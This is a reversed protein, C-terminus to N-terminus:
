MPPYPGHGFGSLGSSYPSRGTPPSSSYAQYPNATPHLAGYPSLAAAAAAATQSTTTAAASAAHAAAALGAPYQSSYPPYQGAYAAYASAAASPSVSSGARYGAAPYQPYGPPQYAPFSSASTVSTGSHAPSPLSSSLPQQTTAATNILSSLDPSITSAYDPRRFASTNGASLTYNLYDLASAHNHPSSLDEPVGSVGSSDFSPLLHSLNLPSDAGTIAGTGRPSGSLLGSGAHQMLSSALSSSSSASQQSSLQQQALQPSTESVSTLFSSSQAGGGSQSSASGSVAGYSPSNNFQSSSGSPSFPPLPTPTPPQQVQPAVQAVNHSVVSSRNSSNSNNNSSSAHSQQSEQSQQSGSQLFPQFLPQQSFNQQSPFQSLNSSSSAESHPTSPTDARPVLNSISQLPTLPATSNSSSEQITPKVVGTLIEGTSRQDSLPKSPEHMGFAIDRSRSSSNSATEDFSNTRYIPSQNTISSPSKMAQPSKHTTLALPSNQQQTALALPANQEATIRESNQVGISQNSNETSFEEPAVSESTEESQHEMLQESDQEPQFAEETPVETNEVETNESHEVSEELSENSGFKNPSLNHESTSGSKTSAYERQMSDFLSEGTEENEGKEESVKTEGAFTNETEGTSAEETEDVREKDSDKTESKESSTTVSITGKRHDLISKQNGLNTVSVGMGKRLIQVTGGRMNGRFPMGGRSHTVTVKPSIKVGRMQLKNPDIGKNAPTIVVSKNLVAQQHARASM